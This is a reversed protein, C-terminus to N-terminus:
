QRAQQKPVHLDCCRKKVPQFEEQEECETNKHQCWVQARKINSNNTLASYCAGHYWFNAYLDFVDASM